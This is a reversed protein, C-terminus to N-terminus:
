AVEIGFHVDIHSHCVPCWFAIRELETEDEICVIPVHDRRADVPRECEVVNILLSADDWGWVRLTHGDGKLIM